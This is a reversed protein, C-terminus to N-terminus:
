VPCTRPIGRDPLDRLDNYDSMIMPNGSSQAWLGLYDTRCGSASTPVGM